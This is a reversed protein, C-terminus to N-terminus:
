TITSRRAPRSCLLSMPAASMRKIEVFIEGDSFKKVEAECLPLDLHTAIDLALERHANGSFIKIINAMTEVDIM